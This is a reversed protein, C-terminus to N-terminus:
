GLAPGLRRKPSSVDHQLIPLIGYAPHFDARLVRNGGFVVVPLREIEATMGAMFGEYLIGDSHADPPQIRGCRANSIASSM